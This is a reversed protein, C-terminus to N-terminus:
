ISILAFTKVLLADRQTFQLAGHKTASTVKLIKFDKLKPIVDIKHKM